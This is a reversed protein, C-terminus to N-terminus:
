RVDPSQRIIWILEELKQVGEFQRSVGVDPNQVVTHIARVDFQCMILVIPLKQPGTM